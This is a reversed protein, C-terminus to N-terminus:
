QDERSISQVHLIVENLSSSWDIGETVAALAKEPVPELM